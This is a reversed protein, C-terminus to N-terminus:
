FIWSSIYIFACHRGSLCSWILISCPMAIRILGFVRGV